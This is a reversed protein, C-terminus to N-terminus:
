VSGSMGRKYVIETEAARRRRNHPKFCVTVYIRTPRLVWLSAVTCTEVTNAVSHNRNFNDTPPRLQFSASSNLKLLYGDPVFALVKYSVRVRDVDNDVVVGGWVFVKLM